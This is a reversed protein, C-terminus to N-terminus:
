PPHKTLQYTLHMRPLHSSFLPNCRSIYFLRTNKYISLSCLRHASRLSQLSHRLHSLGAFSASHLFWLGGSIQSGYQSVLTPPALRMATEQNTVICGKIPKSSPQFQHKCSFFVGLTQNIRWHQKLFAQFATIVGVNVTFLQQCLVVHSGLLRM